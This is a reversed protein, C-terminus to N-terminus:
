LAGRDKKSPPFSPSGPARWTKKPRTEAIIESRDITTLLKQLHEPELSLEGKVHLQRVISVCLNILSSHSVEYPRLKHHMDDIFEYNDLSLKTSTAKRELGM